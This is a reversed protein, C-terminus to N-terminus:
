KVLVMRYSYDNGNSTIVHGVYIGDQNQLNLSNLLEVKKTSYIQVGQINFISMVAGQLEEDSLGDIKVMSTQNVKLPNPYVSVTVKKKLPINLVKPCTNFSIGNNTTLKVSYAGVLGAPDSYYQKTAGDIITGNKYWQFGTFTNSENNCLIVDDFKAVIYDSPVNVVFQFNYLDSAVGLENRFQISAPYTGYPTGAPIPITVTGSTGVSPLNTYGSNQFGQALAASGYLVQFQVPNGSLVTYSLDLSSGQCGSTTSLVANFIVVKESIKAGTILLNAPVLYNTAASGGLTYAVTITKGTGASADNFNAIASVSINGADDPEVGSLSGASVVVATTNGDVMKNSTVLTNSISLQKPVIEGNPVVADTPRIYNGSAPGTLSYAINITKGKEVNKSSYNAVVVPTVFNEDGPALGQLLGPGVNAKTSGDYIKLGTVVPNGITLSKPTITLSKGVFSITYNPGASLYGINIAYTGVAEGQLRALAGTFHDSALLAPTAAYTLQPDSTGYTKSQGDAAVVIAAPNITLIAPAYSITYNPDAAGYLSIPYIAVPSSSTAFTGITPLTKPAKDGNVLGSYTVTFAPLAAGYVKSKNEATILLNRKSVYGYFPFYTVAYNSEKFGNAGTAKSPMVVYSAGAPAYADGGTADPTLTVDTVVEKGVGTANSVFYNSYQGPILESGFERFPGTATVFLPRRVIDMYGTVFTIDYNGSTLGDPTISYSVGVNVATLATGSFILAGGLVAENEGAIFGNYTVTFPNYVVGNYIKAKNDATVLLTKRKVVISIPNAYAESCLGSKVVARYSWTGASTPTESYTTSTSVIDMWSGSGVMKQWKVVTGVQGALTMNGTADGYTIPSVGGTISGGVSAPFVTMRVANSEAAGSWDSMCAVRALRKYWSTVTIPGPDYSASNSGALDSFGTTGSTSSVQWKYELVGTHGSPLLASTLGLPDFPTCGNQDSSITGGNTPNICFLTIQSGPNNSSTAAMYKESGAPGNYEFVEALYSTGMTLGTITVSTGTGNYVCYWGSGVLSGNAFVPSATYTTNIAPTVTGANSAKVFVVRKSGDGITWSINMQYCQIASFVVESAQTSPTAIADVKVGALSGVNNLSMVAGNGAADRITSGNPSISAGVAIGDTDLDGAVTTYRFVLSSTGSGSINVAHVLNGGIILTLYPTGGSLFVMESFNVTFDLNQGVTFTGNAPVSVSSVSPPTTDITLSINGSGASNNGAADTCIARLTHPGDGLNVAPTYSWNGAADATTTGNAVGDVFITVTSNAEATGNIAPTNDNSSFGNSPSTIAPPVPSSIDATFATDSMLSINGAGDIAYVNYSTGDTVGANNASISITTNVNAGASAASGISAATIAALTNATSSPVVYLRGTAESSQAVVNFGATREAVNVFADGGATGAPVLTVVPSKTDISFNPSNVSGSGSNGLQDAIGSYNLTIQNVANEVNASPTFIGTWTLSGDASSMTNLAGNPVTLNANSFGTAAESFTITVVTSEGIKLANSGFSFLATPAVGDVRVNATSGVGALVLSADMGLNSKMTGGNRAISSGITIGNPDLDGAAVTYRFLLATTGSGSIYSANVTGSNLILPLTPVGSGTNVFVNESYNVIFDLNDGPKYTGDTPVLASSITPTPLITWIFGAKTATGGPTTVSVNGSSGAGVVATISTPSDVTFSTAPTGGFTVATVGTFDTGTITVTQGNSAIAPAFDTVAPIRNVTVKFTASKSNGLGDTVTYTVMTVGLPFNAGSALGATRTTNPVGGLTYGITAYGSGSNSGQTGATPYNSGGGGGGWYGGGGGYYGGGGGGGPNGPGNGNGPTSGGDGGIGLTGATTGPCVGGGGAIGGAIQSGGGGGNTPQGYGAAGSLGGGSGGGTYYSSPSAGGGGGGGGGAVVVRDTLATGGIRLDTAGGGHGGFAYLNGGQIAGMNGGGNYSSGSNSYHPSQGRDGVFVNIATGPTVAFTGTINGGYGGPIDYYIGMYQGTNPDSYPWIGSGGAGGGLDYNISYIGEPVYYTQGSGTYGFNQYYGCPNTGVPTSYNVVAGNIGSAVNVTIDAPATIQLCPNFTFGTKSASGGLTTVSVSGSTGNAVVASISTSSVVTFSIPASGGFTVSTAGTFGTGSIVVTQQTTASAPTFSNIVPSPLFTFGSRSATGGPTTVSISGSAGAAVVATISTTSVVNFSTAPTGGFSVATAGGLDTGTITVTAGAAATLPAFSTIVPPVLTTVDIVNSEDSSGGANVAKLKYKYATGSALGTIIKTATPASITFPSGAVQNVFNDSSVYLSYSSAGSVTNWNATFGGVAIGTAASATPAAPLTTVGVVNSYGGTGKANVVKVKYQYSTGPSLSAIVKNVGPPAVTFPSGTIQTAFNDASVELIYNTVDSESSWNATFGATSIASAATAVPVPISSYIFVLGNPPYVTASFTCYAASVTSTTTTWNNGTTRCVIDSNSSGALGVQTSSTSGMNSESGYCYKIQNTTEFLKIQFNLIASPDGLLTFNKYQVTLIRFPAIGETKYSFESTPIVYLDAGFACLVRGTAISELPNYYYPILNESGLGIFGNTSAGFTTYDLGNYGFTFGIPLTSYYSDDEDLGLLVTGGTINTYIQGTQQSFSYNSIQAHLPSIVIAVLFLMLFGYQIKKM